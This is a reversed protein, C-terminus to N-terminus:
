KEKEYVIRRDKKATDFATVLYYKGLGKRKIILTILRIGSRGVVLYRDKDTKRHFYINNEAETIEEIKVRHKKIHEINWGNWVLTTIKIRTM